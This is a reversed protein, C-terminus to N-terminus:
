IKNRFEFPTISTYHKFTRSFHSQSSFGLFLAIEILPKDTYRLLRQAEQIKIKLIFISLSEGTEKKFDTSLRSRGKKHLLFSINYFFAINSVM